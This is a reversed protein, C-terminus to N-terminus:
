SRVTMSFRRGSREGGLEQIILLGPQQQLVKDVVRVVVDAHHGGDGLADIAEAGDAAL